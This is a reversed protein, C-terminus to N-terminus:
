AEAGKRPVTGCLQKGKSAERSMRHELEEEEGVDITM